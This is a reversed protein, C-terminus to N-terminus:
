RCPGGRVSRLAPGSPGGAHAAGRLADMALGPSTLFPINAAGLLTLGDNLPGLVPHFIMRAILAVCVPALFMPLLFTVRYLSAGKVNHHLALALVLGIVYQLAVSVFVIVATTWISGWFRGSALVAAYNDLGVFRPPSPPVLRMTQFSVSLAYILPFLSVVLVVLFAPWLFVHKISDRRPTATTM